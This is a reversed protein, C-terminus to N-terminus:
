EENDPQKLVLVPCKALRAVREAVSGLLLRKFGSRGHSPIVILGADISEAFDAIEAGPSGIKVAFHVNELDLFSLENRMETRVHDARTQDDITEWLVGPETVPLPFLVHVVHLHANTEALTLGLEVAARAEASFDYPVVIPKAEFWSM